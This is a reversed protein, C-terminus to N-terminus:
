SKCKRWISRVHKWKLRTVSSYWRTRGFCNEFRHYMQRLGHVKRAGVTISDGFLGFHSEVHSVDGVLEIPRTWFSESGITREACVTCRDRCPGFRAERQAEDGLLVM